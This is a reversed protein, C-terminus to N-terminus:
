KALGIGGHATKLDSDPVNAVSNKRRLRCMDCIQGLVAPVTMVLIKLDL